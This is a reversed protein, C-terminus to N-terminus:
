GPSKASKHRKAYKLDEFHEEMLMEYEDQAFRNDSDFDGLTADRDCLHMLDHLLNTVLYKRKLGPNLCDYIAILQSAREAAAEFLDGLNPPLKVFKSKGKPAMPHRVRTAKTTM